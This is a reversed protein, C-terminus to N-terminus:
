VLSVNITGDPKKEYKFVFRGFVHGAENLLTVEIEILPEQLVLTQNQPSNELVYKIASWPRSPVDRPRSNTMGFVVMPMPDYETVLILRQSGAAAFDVGNSFQEVWAGFGSYIERDAERYIIQARIGRVPAVGVRGVAPRNAIVAVFASYQGLGSEVFVFSDEHLCIKPTSVCALNPELEASPLTAEMAPSANTTRDMPGPSQLHFHQTVNRATTVPSGIMDGAAIAKATQTGENSLRAKELRRKDWRWRALAIIAGAVGGIGFLWSYQKLSTLFVHM